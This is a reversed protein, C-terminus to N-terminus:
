WWCRLVVRGCEAVGSSNLFWHARPVWRHAALRAPPTTSDAGSARSLSRFPLEPAAAGVECLHFRVTGTRTGQRRAVADFHRPRLGGNWVVRRTTGRETHPGRQVTSPRDGTSGPPRSCLGHLAGLDHHLRRDYPQHSEAEGLDHGFALSGWLLAGTMAWRKVAVIESRHATRRLPGACGFAPGRAGTADSPQAIRARVRPDPGPPHRPLVGDNRTRPHPRRARNKGRLRSQATRRTPGGGRPARPRRRRCGAFTSLCPRPRVWASSYQLRNRSYFPTDAYSAELQVSPRKSLASEYHVLAQGPRALEFALDGAIAEAWPSLPTRAGVRARGRSAPLRGCRHRGRALPARPVRRERACRQHRRTRPVRHARNRSRRARSRHERAAALCRRQATAAHHRARRPTSRARVRTRGPRALRGCTHRRASTSGHRPDAAPSGM